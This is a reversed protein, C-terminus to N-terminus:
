IAKTSTYEEFTNDSYILITKMLIRNKVEPSPSHENLPNEYPQDKSSHPEEEQNDFPFLTNLTNPKENYFDGKGTILWQLNVNPFKETFKKIFDYGPNNRGTLIHSLGSRQIELIDALESPTLNEKKLFLNLQDRM